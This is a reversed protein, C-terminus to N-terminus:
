NHESSVGLGSALMDDGKEGAGAGAGIIRNGNGVVVVSKREDFTVHGDVWVECLLGSVV